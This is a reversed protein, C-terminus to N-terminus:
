HAPCSDCGGGCASLGICSPKSWLPCDISKGYESIDVGQEDLKVLEDERACGVSAKEPSNIHSFSFSNCTNCIKRLM